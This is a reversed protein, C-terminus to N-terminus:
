KVLYPLFGFLFVNVTGHIVVVFPLSRTKQFIFGLIFGVITTFILEEIMGYGSHMIGFLISTLILGQWLGIAEEFRTQLISRFIIEEIVGVFVFMIIILATINAISPNTLLYPPDLIEYEVFGIIFGILVAAPIYLFIYRTTFGLDKLTIGQNKILIYIPIFMPSYILPYWYLTMTFFIPMALSLIRLQLLLMLSQIIQKRIRRPNDEQYKEVKFEESGSSIKKELISKDDNRLSIMLFILANLNIAHFIVGTSLAGYFIMLEGLLILSISPVVMMLEPKLINSMNTTKFLQM